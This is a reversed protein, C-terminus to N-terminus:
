RIEGMAEISGMIAHFLKTDDVRVNAVGHLLQTFPRKGASSRSLGVRSMTIATSDCHAIKAWFARLMPESQHEFMRVTIRIKHDPVNYIERLFKLFLWVLNPDANALSVSHYTVPKGVRKKVRKYGEAWYLATGAVQLDRRSLQGFHKVAEARIARARQQAISTQTRNRAILKTLATKNTRKLMRELVSAPLVLQSFWSALTSKPVGLAQQIETYSKGQLRLKRAADRDNRM